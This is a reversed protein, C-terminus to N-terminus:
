GAAEDDGAHVSRALHDTVQERVGPPLPTDTLSEYLWLGDAALRAVFRHLEEATLPASTPAPPTWRRLVESQPAYMVPDNVSELMLLLEARPSVQTTVRAFAALREDDTAEDAPKGAAAVMAEEWRAALHEHLALLMADRTPFHYLLGGKTLGSEEAVSEFTVATVGGSEIVRVVAQLIHTRNSTRM